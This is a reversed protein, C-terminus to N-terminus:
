PEVSEYDLVVRFHANGSMMRDYAEPAQILTFSAAISLASRDLVISSAEPDMSTMPNFSTQCASHHRNSETVTEVCSVLNLQVELHTLWSPFISLSWPFYATNNAWILSFM